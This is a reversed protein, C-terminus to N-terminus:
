TNQVSLCPQTTVLGPRVEPIAPLYALSITVCRSMFILTFLGNFLCSLPKHIHLCINVWEYGNKKQVTCPINTLQVIFNLSNSTTKIGLELITYGFCNRVCIMEFKKELNERIMKKDFVNLM